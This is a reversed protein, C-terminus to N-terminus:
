MKCFLITCLHLAAARFTKNKASQQLPNIVCIQCGKTKYCARGRIIRTKQIMCSSLDMCLMRKENFSVSRPNLLMEAEMNIDEVRNVQQLM